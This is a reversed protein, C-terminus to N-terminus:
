FCSPLVSKAGTIEFVPLGTTEGERFHQLVGNNREIVGVKPHLFLLCTISSTGPM